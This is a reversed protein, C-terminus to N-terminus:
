RLTARPDRVLARVAQWVECVRRIEEKESASIPVPVLRGDGADAFTLGWEEGGECSQTGYLELAVEHSREGLKVRVRRSNPHFGTPPTIRAPLDFFDARAIAERIAGLDDRRAVSRSPEDTPMGTADPVTLEIEVEGTPSLHLEFACCHGPTPLMLGYASLEAWVELHPPESLAPSALLAIVGISARAM